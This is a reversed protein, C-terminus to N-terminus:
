AFRNHLGSGGNTMGILAAINLIILIDNLANYLNIAQTYFQTLFSFAIAMCFYNLVAIFQIGVYVGSLLTDYKKACFQALFLCFAANILLSHTFDLQTAVSALLFFATYVLTLPLCASRIVAQFVALIILLLPIIM